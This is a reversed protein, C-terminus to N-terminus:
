KKKSLVKALKYSANVREHVKTVQKAMNYEDKGEQADDNDSTNFHVSYTVSAGAPEDFTYSLCIYNYDDDNLDTCEYSSISFSDPTLIVGDKEITLSKGDTDLQINFKAM